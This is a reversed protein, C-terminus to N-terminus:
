RKRSLTPDPHDDFGLGRYLGQGDPSANLDVRTLGLGDFWNVLDEMIARAHGRKRYAPDTVVGFVHGVSGSPNYPTPLRRDIVGMGCAALGTEVDIVTVRMSDHALMEALADACRDKWSVGTPPPGWGASLDSFLLERLRVLEDIDAPTARRVQPMGVDQIM